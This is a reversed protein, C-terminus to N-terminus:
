MKIKILLLFSFCVRNYELYSMLGLKDDAQYTKEYKFLQWKCKIM